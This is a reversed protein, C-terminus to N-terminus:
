ITHRGFLYLRTMGEINFDSIYDMSSIDNSKKALIFRQLKFVVSDPLFRSCLLSLLFNKLLSRFYTSKRGSIIVERAIFDSVTMESDFIESEIRSDNGLVYSVIREAVGARSIVKVVSKNSDFPSIVTGSSRVSNLFQSWGGEDSVITPRFLLSNEREATLKEIVKKERIYADGKFLLRGWFSRPQAFVCNSSVNVFKCSLPLDRCLINNFRINDIYRDSRACNIVVDANRIEGPLPSKYDWIITGNSDQNLSRSVKVPCVKAESSLRDVVASGLAGTAGLIVIKRM